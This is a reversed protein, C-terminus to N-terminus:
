SRHHSPDGRTRRKCRRGKQVAVHGLSRRQQGILHLADASIDSIRTHRGSLSWETESHRFLYIEPTSM